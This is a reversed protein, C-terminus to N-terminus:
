LVAFKSAGPSALLSRGTRSQALDASVRGEAGGGYGFCVVQAISILLMLFPFNDNKDLSEDV